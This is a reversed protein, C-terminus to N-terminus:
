KSIQLHGMQQIQLGIKKYKKIENEIEDIGEEWNFKVEEM